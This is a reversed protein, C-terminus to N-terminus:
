DLRIWGIINTIPTNLNGDIELWIITPKNCVCPTAVVATRLQGNLEFVCKYKFRQICMM